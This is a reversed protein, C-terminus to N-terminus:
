SISEPTIECIKIDGFYQFLNEVSARYRERTNLHRVTLLYQSSWERLRPSNSKPLNWRDEVVQAKRVSLLKSALRKNTSGSSERIQRGQIMYSLWWTEGRKYIGM